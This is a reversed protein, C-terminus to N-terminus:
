YLSIGSTEVSKVGNDYYAIIKNNLIYRGKVSIGLENMEKLFEYDEKNLPLPIDIYIRPANELIKTDERLAKLKYVKM